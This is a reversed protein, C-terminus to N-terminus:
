ARSQPRNQVAKPRPSGLWLNSRLSQNDAATITCQPQRSASVFGETPDNAKLLPPGVRDAGCQLSRGQSLNRALIPVDDFGDDSYLGEWRSASHGLLPRTSGRGCWHPGRVGRPARRRARGWGLSVSCWSRSAILRRSLCPSGTRSIARLYLTLWLVM